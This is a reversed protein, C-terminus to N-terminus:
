VLPTPFRGTVPQSRMVEEVRGIVRALPASPDPGPRADGHTQFLTQGASGFIRVLRHAILRGDALWVIIEGV